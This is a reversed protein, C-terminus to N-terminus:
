GRGRAACRVIAARRREDCRAPHPSRAVELFRQHAPLGHGLLQPVPGGEREGADPLAPVRTPVHLDRRVAVLGAFARDGEEREERGEHPRDPRDRREGVGNGPQDHGREAVHGGHGAQQAEHRGAVSKTDCAPAHSVQREERRGEEQERREGLGREQRRRDPAEDEGALTAPSQREGKAGDGAQGAGLSHEERYRSAHSANRATRSARPEPRSRVLPAQSPTASLMAAVSAGTAANM